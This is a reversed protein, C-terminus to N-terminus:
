QSYYKRQIQRGLPNGPVTASLAAPAGNSAPNPFDGANCYSVDEWSNIPVVTAIGAVDVDLDFVAWCRTPAGGPPVFVTVNSTLNLEVRAPSSQISGDGSFLHVTYRYTGAFPFAPITVIEPGFGSTDDVDLIITQDNVTVQRSTFSVFFNDAPDESSFGHFWTDLDRPDQGWSLNITSSAASAELCGTVTSDATGSTVQLTGSQLGDGATILVTSSPRVPISFTGDTATIASSRGIYNAGTANVRVNSLPDGATNVVCGTINVPNYRVDANWTSFHSVQGSYVQMGSGLTQLTGLGEDAWYGTTRDYSFLGVTAPPGFLESDAVPINVNATQGAALDLIEGAQGTFNVTVAGYSQMPQVTGVGDRSLYDGPMLAADVSPDVVTLQVSIDGNYPAGAEDVFANPPVSVLTEGEVMLDAGAASDFSTGLNMPQMLMRAVRGAPTSTNYVIQSQEGFGDVDTNVVIRGNFEPVELVLQGQGDVNGSLTQLTGQDDWTATVPIGSIAAGTFFNEIRVRILNQNACVITVGGIDNAQSTFATQSTITCVQGLPDGSLTLTFTDDADFAQNIAFAGPGLVQSRGAWQLTVTGTLGQVSGSINRPDPVQPLPTFTEAGGASSGGGCGAIGLVIAAACALRIVLRAAIGHLLPQKIVQPKM